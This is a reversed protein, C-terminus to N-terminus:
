GVQSQLLDWIASKIYIVIIKRNTPRLCSSAKSFCARMKRMESGLGHVCIKNLWYFSFFFHFLYNNSLKLHLQVWKLHWNIIKKIIFQEVYTDTEFSKQLFKKLAVFNLYYWRYKHNLIQYYNSLLLSPLIISVVM